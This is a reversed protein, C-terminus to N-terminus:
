PPAEHDLTPATTRPGTTHLDKAALREARQHRYFTRRSVPPDATLWPKTQLASDPKIHSYRPLPAGGAALRARRLPRFHTDRCVGEAEWPRAETM